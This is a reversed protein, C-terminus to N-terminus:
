VKLERWSLAERELANSYESVGACYLHIWFKRKRDPSNEPLMFISRYLVTGLEFNLRTMTYTVNTGARPEQNGATFSISFDGKRNKEILSDLDAENVKIRKHTAGLGKAYITGHAVTLVREASFFYVAAVFCFAVLWQRAVYKRKSLEKESWIERVKATPRPIRLFATLGGCM